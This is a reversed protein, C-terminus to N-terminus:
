LYVLENLIDKFFLERSNFKYLEKINKGDKMFIVRKCYSAILPDHTVIIVTKKMEENLKQLSEIVVQSSLSDLNGTPEDALIVTPNNSLARCIAVRQKQGGSLESPYNELKEKIGFKEAYNITINIIDQNNKKDLIMPLMINERINLSDMLYFDQFVFGIERRRFLALESVSFESIDKGKFVVAGLINKDIGGLARLLTTKGCGSKGMIAIFEREEISFSVDNLARTSHLNKGQNIDNYIKTLGEVSIFDM